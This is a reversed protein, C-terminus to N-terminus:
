NMIQKCIRMAYAMVYLAVRLQACQPWFHDCLTVAKAQMCCSKYVALPVAAFGEHPFTLAAERGSLISSLACMRSQVTTVPLSSLLVTQGHM